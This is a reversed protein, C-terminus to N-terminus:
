RGYGRSRWNFDSGPISPGGSSMGAAGSFLLSGTPVNVVGYSINAGQTFALSGATTLVLGSSLAADGSLSLSGAANNTQSQTGSHEESAAGDFALFGDTLFARGVQIGAGDNFTLFGFTTATIGIATSADGNFTISGSATNTQSASGGAAPKLAVTIATGIITTAQTVSGTGSSGASSLIGWAAGLGGGGGVSTLEDVIETISALNANTWGSFQATSNTDRGSGAVHVIACDATDTTVSPLTIDTAVAAAKNTTDNIPSTNDVGSFVIIKGIAHNTFGSVSANSDSGAAIKYLVHLAHATAPSEVPSSSLATWGSPAITQGHITEVLLLGIDGASQSGPWAVSLDTTGTAATGAAVFAITM